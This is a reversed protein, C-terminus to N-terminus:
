WGRRFAGPDVPLMGYDSVAPPAGPDWEPDRSPREGRLIAQLRRLTRERDRQNQAKFAAARAEEQAREAMVRQLFEADKRQIYDNLEDPWRQVTDFLGPM